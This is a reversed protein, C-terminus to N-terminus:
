PAREDTAPTVDISTPASVIVSPEQDTGDPLQEKIVTVLDYRGPPLPSRSRDSLTPNTPGQPCGSLVVSTPLPMGLIAVAGLGGGGGGDPYKGVVWGDRVVLTLPSGTQVSVRRGDRSSFVMRLDVGLGAQGSAPAQLTATLRGAEPGTSVPVRGCTLMGTQVFGAAVRPLNHGPVVASAVAFVAVLAVGGVGVRARRRRRRAEVRNRAGLMLLPTPVLPPQEALMLERLDEAM